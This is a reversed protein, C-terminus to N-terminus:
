FVPLNWGPVQQTMERAREPGYHRILVDGQTLIRYRTHTKWAALLRIADGVAPWNLGISVCPWTDSSWDGAESRDEESHSVIDHWWGPPMFLADGKRLEVYLAKPDDQKKPPSTAIREQASLAPFTTASPAMEDHVAPSYLRVSKRGSVQCLLVNPLDYHFPSCSGSTSIWLSRRAVDCGRLLAPIPVDDQLKDPLVNGHCYLFPPSKGLQEFFSATPMMDSPCEHAGDRPFNGSKSRSVRVQPMAACIDRTKWRCAPWSACLGRFM